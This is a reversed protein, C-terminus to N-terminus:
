ADVDLDMLNLIEGAGTKIGHHTLLEFTAVAAAGEGLLAHLDEIFKDRVGQYVDELESDFFNISPVQRGSLEAYLDIYNDLTIRSSVLNALPVAAKKIQNGSELFKIDGITLSNNLLRATISNELDCFRDAEQYSGGLLLNYRDLHIMHINPVIKALGAGDELGRAPEVVRPM